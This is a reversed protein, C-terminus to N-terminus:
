SSIRLEKSIQRLLKNNEGLAAVGERLVDLLSTGISVLQKNAITTRELTSSSKEKASQQPTARTLFLSASPTAAACPSAFFPNAAPAAATEKRISRIGIIIRHGRGQPNGHVLGPGQQLPEQVALSNRAQFHCARIVRNYLRTIYVTYPVSRAQLRLENADVKKKKKRKSTSSPAQRKATTKRAAAATAPSSEQQETAAPGAAPLTNDGETFISTLRKFQQINLVFVISAVYINFNSGALVM